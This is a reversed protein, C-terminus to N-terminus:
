GTSSCCGASAPSGSSRASSRSSSTPTRRPCTSSRRCRSASASASSAARASARDPGPRVSLGHRERRGVPQHVGDPALRALSRRARVALVLSSAPAPSRAWCGSRSARSSCCRASRSRSSSRPASTRSPPSSCSRPARSSCCRAASAGSAAAAALADDGAARGRLARARAEHARVAPVAAPRRRALAARRQGRRRRGPDQGRHAHPVLAGAAGAHPAAAAGPRRARAAAPRRARGRRLRPVQRPVGDRRGPGRAAHAGVLRQLGHGRRGRAPVADRHLPHQIRGAQGQAAIRPAAPSRIPRDASAMRDANSARAALGRWGGRVRRLHPWRAGTHGVDGCARRPPAM